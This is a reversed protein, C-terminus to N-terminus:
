APAAYNILYDIREFSTPGDLALIRTTPDRFHVVTPAPPIPLIPALPELSGDLMM